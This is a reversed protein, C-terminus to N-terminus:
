KNWGIQKLISDPKNAKKALYAKVDERDSDEIYAICLNVLTRQDDADIYTDINDLHYAAVPDGSNAAKALEMGLPTDKGSPMAMGLAAILAAAGAAKALGKEELPFEDTEFDAPVQGKGSCTGCVEKGHSCSSKGGACCPCDRMSGEKVITTRQGDREMRYGLAKLLEAYESDNKDGQSLWGKLLIDLMSRLDSDKNLVLPGEEIRGKHKVEGSKKGPVKRSGDKNYKGAAWDARAKARRKENDEFSEEYRGKHKVEGRKAAKKRDKQVQHGQSRLSHDLKARASTDRKPEDAEGVLKNQYPHKSSAGTTPNSKKPKSKTSVVYSPRKDEAHMAAMHKKYKKTGKKHPSKGEDVEDGSYQKRRKDAAEQDKKLQALKEKTSLKNWDRAMQKQQMKAVMLGLSDGETIIDNIKV